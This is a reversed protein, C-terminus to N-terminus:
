AFHLNDGERERERERERELPSFTPLLFCLLPKQMEREGVKKTELRRFGVEIVKPNTVTPSLQNKKQKKTALNRL